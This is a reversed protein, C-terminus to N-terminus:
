IKSEMFDILCVVSKFILKLEESIVINENDIKELYEKFEDNAIFVLQMIAMGDLKKEDVDIDKKLVEKIEKFKEDNM